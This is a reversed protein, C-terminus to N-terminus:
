LTSELALVRKKLEQIEKVLIPILGTYEISQYDGGNKSGSVLFPYIEQLEHAIFGVDDKNKLMHHYTVPKLCDVVYNQTLPLVNTKIRYDSLSTFNLASITKLCSINGCVDVNAKFSM